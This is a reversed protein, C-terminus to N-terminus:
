SITLLQRVVALNRVFVLRVLDASRAVRFQKRGDIRERGRPVDEFESASRAYPGFTQDARGSANCREIACGLHQSAGLTSKTPRGVHREDFGIEEGPSWGTSIVGHEESEPDRVERFVVELGKPRHDVLGETRRAVYEEEVVVVACFDLQNLADFRGDDLSAEVVAFCKPDDFDRVLGVPEFFAETLQPPVDSDCLGRSGEVPTGAASCASAPDTPLVWETDASEGRSSNSRTRLM